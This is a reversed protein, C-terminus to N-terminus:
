CGHAEAKHKTISTQMQFFSRNFTNEFWQRLMLKVEQDGQQLQMEAEKKQAKLEEHEKEFQAQLKLFFLHFLFHGM